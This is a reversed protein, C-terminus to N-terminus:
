IKVKEIFDDNKKLRLNLNEMADRNRKDKSYKHINMKNIEEFNNTDKEKLKNNEKESNLIEYILIEKIFEENELVAEIIDEFSDNEKKSIENINELMENKLNTVNNINVKNYALNNNIVNKKLKDEIKLKEYTNTESISSNNLNKNVFFDTIKNKISNKNKEKHSFNSNNSDLNNSSLINNNNKSIKGINIEGKAGKQVNHVDMNLKKADIANSVVTFKAELKPFVLDDVTDKGILYHVNVCDHEQGIRHARDEAQIMTAPTFYIEAFVVTSARTLTLGTACATIALIAIKCDENNQFKNVCEHRKENVVHGDIRMYDVKKKKVFEEISDLVIKHHAFIM